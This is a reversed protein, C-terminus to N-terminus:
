TGIGKHSFQSMLDKFCTICMIENVYRTSFQEQSMLHDINEPLFIYIKYWKLYIYYAIYVVM